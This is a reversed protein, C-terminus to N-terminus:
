YTDFRKNNHIVEQNTLRIKSGKLFHMLYLFNLAALIWLFALNYLLPGSNLTVLLIAEIKYIKKIPNPNLEQTGTKNNNTPKM